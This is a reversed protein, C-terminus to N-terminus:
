LQQQQQQQLQQLWIDEVSWLTDGWGSQDVDPLGSFAYGGPSPPQAGQMWDVGVGQIGRSETVSESAPPSSLQAEFSYAMTPPPEAARHVPRTPALPAAANQHMATVASGSSAEHIREVLRPMWISRLIDRFQKSNVDCRLQKAQKQVRTRWYNKIENDTRGPLHRAIKSWRNGLRFHLELILLQEEPTINGRRVDPRLYNLWRLRCSKSSLFHAGACRALFNWRGEGHATVYNMLILDEDATWPGRRLEMEEESPPTASGCARGQFEM